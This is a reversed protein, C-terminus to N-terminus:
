QCWSARNAVNGLYTLKCGQQNAVVVSSEGSGFIQGEPETNKVTWASGSNNRLYLTYGVPPNVPLLFSGSAGAAPSVFVCGSVSTSLTSSVEEATHVVQVAQVAQVPQVPQVKKPVYGTNM